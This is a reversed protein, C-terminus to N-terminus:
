YSLAECVLLKLPHGHLRHRRRRKRDEDGAESGRGGAM